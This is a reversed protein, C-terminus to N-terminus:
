RPSGAEDVARFQVITASMVAFGGAGGRGARDPQQAARESFRLRVDEYSTVAVRARAILGALTKAPTQRIIRNEIEWESNSAAKMAREAKRFGHPARSVFASWKEHAIIEDARARAEPSPTVQWHTLTTVGNEKKWSGDLWTEKRLNDIHRDTYIGDAPQLLGLEVDGPRARIAEPMGKEEREWRQEFSKREFPEFARYARRSAVRAAEWDDILKFLAADPSPIAVAAPPAVAAEVIAPAKPGELLAAAAAPSAVAGVAAIGFLLARRSAKPAEPTRTQNDQSM